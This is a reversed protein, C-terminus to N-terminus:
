THDKSLYDSKGAAWKLAHIEGDIYTYDNFMWTGMFPNTQMGCANCIKPPQPTHKKRVNILEELAKELEEKSRMKLEEVEIVTVFTDGEVEDHVYTVMYKNSVGLNNTYTITQDEKINHSLPIVIKPMNMVM